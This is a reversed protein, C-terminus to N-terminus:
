INARVYTIISCDNSSTLPNPAFIQIKKLLFLRHRLFRIHGQLM